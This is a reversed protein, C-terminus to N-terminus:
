LLDEKPEHDNCILEAVEDYLNTGHLGCELLEDEIIIAHECNYCTPKKTKIKVLILLLLAAIVSSFNLCISILHYNLLGFPISLISTIFLITFILLASLSAKRGKLLFGFLIIVLVFIILNISSSIYSLFELNM